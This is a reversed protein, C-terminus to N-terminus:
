PASPWTLLRLACSVRAALIGRCLSHNFCDCHLSPLSLAAEVLGRSPSIRSCRGSAASSTSLATQGLVSSCHHSRAVFTVPALTGSSLALDLVPQHLSFSCSPEMFGAAFSFCSWLLLSWCVCSRPLPPVSAESCSLAHLSQRTPLVHLGPCSLYRLRSANLLPRYVALSVSM